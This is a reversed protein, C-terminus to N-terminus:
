RPKIHAPLYWMTAGRAGSKPHAYPELIGGIKSREGLRHKVTYLVREYDETSEDLQQPRFQRALVDTKVGAGKGYAGLKLLAKEIARRSYRDKRDVMECRGWPMGQRDGTRRMRTSPSARRRRERNGTRRHRGHCSRSRLSPYAGNARDRYASHVPFGTDQSGPEDNLRPLNKGSVELMDAPREPEFNDDQVLEATSLSTPAPLATQRNRQELAAAVRMRPPMSSPAWGWSPAKRKSPARGGASGDFPLGPRNGRM